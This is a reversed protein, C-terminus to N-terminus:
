KEDLVKRILNAMDRTIVPKMLLGQFGSALAKEQNIKDSFGTCIIIRVDPRIAMFKAAMETGSMHPMTMDTVVLDFRHPQRKFLELAELSSSRTTVDYGLSELMQRGLKVLDPEDDVFLIRETGTPIPDETRLETELRKEFAPLYVTFTSGKDPASSALIVGGHSKVIGHVVSLGMGTGHDKEKTTFFPEFIRELIELPMGHGTDTVMLRAYAGPSIEPHKNTFNEDLVVDQLDIKLIGGSAAMALSANTCLNMLVQHIQTPDGTVLADSRINQKIEITSPM